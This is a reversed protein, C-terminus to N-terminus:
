DVINHQPRHIQPRSKDAAMLLRRIECIQADVLALL